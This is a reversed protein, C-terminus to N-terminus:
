DLDPIELKKLSTEPRPDAKGKRFRDLNLLFAIVGFILSLVAPAILSRTWDIYNGVGASSDLLYVLVESVMLLACFIALTIAIVSLVKRVFRLFKDIGPTTRVKPAKDKLARMSLKM